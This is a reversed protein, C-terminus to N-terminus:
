QHGRKGRESNKYLFIGNTNAATGHQGAPGINKKLLFLHIGEDQGQGLVQELAGVVLELAAVGYVHFGKDVYFIIAGRRM